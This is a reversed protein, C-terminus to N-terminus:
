HTRKESANLYVAAQMQSGLQKKTARILTKLDEDGPALDTVTVAFEATSQLLIGIVDAPDFGPNEEIFVELTHALLSYLKTKEAETSM